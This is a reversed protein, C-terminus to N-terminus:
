PAVVRRTSAVVSVREFTLQRINWHPNHYLAKHAPNELSESMRKLGNPMVILNTTSVFVNKLDLSGSIKEAFRSTIKSSNGPLHWQAPTIYLIDNVLAIRTTVIFIESNECRTQM